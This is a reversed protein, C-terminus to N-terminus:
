LHLAIRLLVDLLEEISKDYGFTVLLDEVVKLDCRTIPWTEGSYTGESFSIDSDKFPTETLDNSGDLEFSKFIMM